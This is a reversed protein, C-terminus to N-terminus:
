RELSQPDYTLRGNEDVGCLFRAGNLLISLKYKKGERTTGDDMSLSCSEAPQIEVQARDWGAIFEKLVSRATIGVSYTHGTIVTGDRLRVRFEPGPKSPPEPAHLYCDVRELCEKGEPTNKEWWELATGYAYDELRNEDGTYCATQLSFGSHGADLWQFSDPGTRVCAPSALASVGLM